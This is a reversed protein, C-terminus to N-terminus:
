YDNIQRQMEAIQKTLKGIEIDKTRVVSVANKKEKKFKTVEDLLNEM